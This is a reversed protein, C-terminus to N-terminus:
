QCIEEQLQTLDDAIHFKIRVLEPSGIIVAVTEDVYKVQHATNM